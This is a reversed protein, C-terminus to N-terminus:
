LIGCSLMFARLYPWLYFAGLASYHKYDGIGVESTGPVTTRCSRGDCWLPQLDFFDVGSESAALAALTERALAGKALTENLPPTCSGRGCDAFTGESWPAASCREGRLPEHIRGGLTMRFDAIDGLLVLRASRARTLGVLVRLQLVQLAAHEPNMLVEMLGTKVLVVDGPRVSAELAATSESVYAPYPGRWVRPDTYPQGPHSWDMVRLRGWVSVVLGPILAGAKSDGLVFLLPPRRASSTWAIISGASSGHPPYFISSGTASTFLSDEAAASDASKLTSHWDDFAGRSFCPPRTPGCGRGDLSAGPPVHLTRRGSSMDCLCDREAGALAHSNASFNYSPRDHTLRLPLGEQLSRWNLRGGLMTTNIAHLLLVSGLLLPLLVASACFPRRLRKPGWRHFYGEVVHHTVVALGVGVLLAIVILRAAVTPKACGDFPTTRRLLVIAPWHTLYLPYSLGRGIYVPLWHSLATHVPPPAALPARHCPPCALRQPALRRAPAGGIIILLTGGCALLGWPMPFPATDASPTCALSTVLLAVGCVDAALM